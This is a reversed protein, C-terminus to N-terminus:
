ITGQSFFRDLTTFIDDNGVFRGQGINERFREVHAAFDRGLEPGPNFGNHSRGYGLRELYHGNLMQEFAGRIPFVLLPKGLFLAECILTHGAGCVVYECGALDQLFADESYPKFALNGDEGAGGSGYVLVPGDLSRLFQFFGPFISYGHYALVHGARHPTTNLVRERLLPGTIKVNPGPDGKPRFFSTVLFHTPRGYFLKMICAMTLFAPRMNLPLDHRGKTVVHQNDLSLCPLGLERAVRPAFYEYDTLVADPKFSEVARMLRQKLAKGRALTKVASWFSKLREVRHRAVPTEPNYCEVVPYERGLIEVGDSHTVFMFEHRRFHRAVTLARIAHGHGTGHVGYLIRAMDGRKTVAFRCWPRTSQGSRLPRATADPAASM